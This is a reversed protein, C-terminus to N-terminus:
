REQTLRRLMSALKSAEQLVLAAGGRAATEPGEAYASPVVETAASVAQIAHRSIATRLPDLFERDLASLPGGAVIRGPNLLNCVGALVRGIMTAVDSLVMLCARDGSRSAAIIEDIGAHEGLLPRLDRLVASTSAKQVLCGRNGCQCAPGEFDISVHGLEGGAGSAGRHLVGGTVLASDLRTSMSVYLMSDARNGAGWMYEAMAALRTTNQVLTLSGFRAAFVEKVAAGNETRGPVGIGLGLLSSPELGLEALTEDLLAAAAETRVAGAGAEAEGVPLSVSRSALQRHALDTIHVAVREASFGVGAAVGANPNLAVLERVRGDLDATSPVGIQMVLGHELMETVITSITTRSVGMQRAMDARHM